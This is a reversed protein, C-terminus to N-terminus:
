RLTDPIDNNNVNITSRVTAGDTVHDANTSTGELLVCVFLWCDRM